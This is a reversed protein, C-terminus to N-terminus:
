GELRAIVTQGGVTKEGTRVLVQTGRPLYLDTRSGFRILGFRDGTRYRQGVTARCIIRRAIYGTVQSVVVLAGNERELVISHRQNHEAAPKGAHAFQGKLFASGVVSGAIPVRNVHVNFVNLFIVVRVMGQAADGSLRLERPPDCPEVAIVVGDAPAVVVGPADPIARQPDRFFWCCFPILLLLLSAGAAGWPGLVLGALVMAGIAVLAAIAIIVWGERAIIPM